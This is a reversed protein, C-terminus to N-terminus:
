FELDKKMKKNESLKLTIQFKNKYAVKFSYPYLICFLQRLNKFNSINSARFSSACLLLYLICMYKSGVNPEEDDVDDADAVVEKVGNAVVSLEVEVTRLELTAFEFLYSV